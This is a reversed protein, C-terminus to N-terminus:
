EGLSGETPLQALGAALVGAILIMFRTDVNRLTGPEPSDIGLLGFRRGNANVPVSILSRFNRKKADIFDPAEHLDEVWLSEEGQALKIVYRAYDGDEMRFVLRPLPDDERGEFAQRELRDESLRYFVSRYTEKRGMGCQARATAVARNVLTDLARRKSEADVAVSVQALASVLPQSAEALTMRVKERAAKGELSAKRSRVEKLTNLLAMSATCAIAGLWWYVKVPAVTAGAFASSVTIMIPLAVPVGFQM